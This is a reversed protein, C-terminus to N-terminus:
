TMKQAIMLQSICNLRKVNPDRFPKSSLVLQKRMFNSGYDNVVIMRSHTHLSEM